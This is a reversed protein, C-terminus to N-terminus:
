NGPLRGKNAAATPPIPSLNEMENGTMDSELQKMIYFCNSLYVILLAIFCFFLFILYWRNCQAYKSPKVFNIFMNRGSSVLHNEFVPLFCCIKLAFPRIDQSHESQSYKRKTKDRRKKRESKAKKKKHLIHERKLM